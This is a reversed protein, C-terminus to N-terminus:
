TPLLIYFSSGKGEESEVNVEGGHLEVIQKAISLGLGRGGNISLRAQDARYFREFLFSLDEAAIGPGNDAVSIVIYSDKLYTRVTILGKPHTYKIGNEIINGVSQSIKLIDVDILPLEQSPQLLELTVESVGAKFQWRSVEAAILEKISYQELKLKFQGSDTEALWDLDHVLNSLTDIEKIIQSAAEKSTVIEDLLGKAELRIVNLPTNIDHSVDSILRKRLEKQIQLSKIMQNFSASMQGLEDSSNVPLFHSDRSQSVIGTAKTLARIPVTIKLSIFAGIFIALIITILGQVIRPKLISIIYEGTEADLFDKNIYVTITGVFEFSNYDIIQVSDGEILPSNDRQLLDAFSNYLTKGKNDRVIIRMSLKEQSNIMELNEIRLIEQKLLSWGNNRTYASSIIQALSKTRIETLLRPLEAKTSNYEIITSFLVTLIIILIFASLIRWYISKFVRLM